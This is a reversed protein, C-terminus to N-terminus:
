HHYQHLLQECEQIEKLYSENQKLIDINQVLVSELRSSIKDLTSNIQDLMMFGHFDKKNLHSQNKNVSINLIHSSLIDINHIKQVFDVMYSNKIICNNSLDSLNDVEAISGSYNLSNDSGHQVNLNFDVNDNIFEKWDNVIKHTQYDEEKLSEKSKEIKKEFNTNQFSNISNFYEHSTNEFVNNSKKKDSQFEQKKNFIHQDRESIFNSKNPNAQQQLVKLISKGNFSSHSFESTESRDNKNDSQSVVSTLDSNKGMKNLKSNLELTNGFSTQNEVLNLNPKSIKNTIGSFCDFNHNTAKNDKSL